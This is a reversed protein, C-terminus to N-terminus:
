ARDAVTPTLDGQLRKAIREGDIGGRTGIFVIRTEPPREGWPNGVTLTARKGTSQLVVQHDPKELLSLLGKARFVTRPLDKLVAHLRQLPLPEKTTFTYTDFPPTDHPQAPAATADGEELSAAGGIGFLLELPVRGQEVDLMRARPAHRIVWDRARERGQADVLDVKNLVAVDAAAVQRRALALMEDTLHPTAECDVVTVIGDLPAYPQLMEDGFTAAVEFPDSVGSTEVLIRDPPDERQLLWAVGAILGDSLNCCICGNELSVVEGDRNVILDADINVAGFDNVLVAIRQGHDGTLVHNLLSTKGAGLFGTVITVPVKPDRRVNGAATDSM